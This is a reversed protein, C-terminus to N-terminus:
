GLGSSSGPHLVGASDSITTLRLGFVASAENDREPLVAFFSWFRRVIGLLGKDADPEGMTEDLPLGGRFFFCCKQDVCPFSEDGVGVGLSSCASGKSSLGIVACVISSGRVRGLVAGSLGEALFRCFYWVQVAPMKELFDLCRAELFVLRDGVGGENSLLSLSLMLSIKSVSSVTTSLFPEGTLARLCDKSSCRNEIGVVSRVRVSLHPGM